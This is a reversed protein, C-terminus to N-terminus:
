IVEVVFNKASNLLYRLSTKLYNGIDSDSDASFLNDLSSTIAKARYYLFLNSEMKRFM